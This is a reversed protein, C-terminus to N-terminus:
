CTGIHESVFVNQSYFVVFTSLQLTDTSLVDSLGHTPVIMIHAKETL